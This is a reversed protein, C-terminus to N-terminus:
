PDHCHPLTASFKKSAYRSDLEISCTGKGDVSLNFEIYQPTRELLDRILTLGMVDNANSTAPSRLAPEVHFILSCLFPNELFADEAAEAFDAEPTFTYTAFIDPDTLFWSAIASFFKASLFSPDDFMDDILGIMSNKAKASDCIMYHKAPVYGSAYSKSDWRRAERPDNPVGTAREDGSYIRALAFAALGNGYDAATRYQTTADRFTRGGIARHGRYLADVIEKVNPNTDSVMAISESTCGPANTQRRPFNLNAYLEGATTRNFRVSHFSSCLRNADAKQEVSDVRMSAGTADETGRLRMRIFEQDSIKEYWQGVIEDNTRTFELHITTVIDSNRM